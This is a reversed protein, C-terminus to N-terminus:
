DQKKLPIVSAYLDFADEPKWRAPYLEFCPGTMDVDYEDQQQVWTGFIENYAMLIAAQNPVCCRAYQNASLDFSEMGRPVSFDGPTEVAVWYDFSVRRDVMKYLNYVKNRTKGPFEKLRGLFERWVPPCVISSQPITTRVRIGVLHKAPYEVIEIDFGPGVENM